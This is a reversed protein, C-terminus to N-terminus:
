KWAFGTSSTSSFTCVEISHLGTGVSTYSYIAGPTYCPSSLANVTGVGWTPVVTSLNFLTPNAPNTAFRTFGGGTGRGLAYIASTIPTSCGVSTCGAISTGTVDDEVSTMPVGQNNSVGSITVDTVTGTASTSCAGFNTLNPNPGCIHVANTVKAGMCAGQSSSVFVNSVAVNGVNAAADGIAVGDWFAEVHIDRITNNGANVQVGAYGAMGSTTTDGLCTLGHLGQTQAALVVCSSSGGSCSSGSHATSSINNYPGSNSAGSGVTLGNGQIQAMGVDNVYSSTQACENDIGGYTAGSTGSGVLRLHEVSIGSAISPCVGASLAPGMLIMAGGATCCNNGSADNLVTMSGEGILRVNNPLTWTGSTAPMVITSAPLLVTMPPYPGGTSPFPNASCTQKNSSPPVVGRADIVGGTSPISSIAASIMSCVDFGSVGCSSTGGGTGCFASADIWAPSAALSTSTQYVANNGRQAFALFPLSCFVCLTVTLLVAHSEHVTKV